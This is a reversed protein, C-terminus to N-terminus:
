LARLLEELREDIAIVCLTTRPYKGDKPGALLEQRIRRLRDPDDCHDIHDLLEVCAEFEDEIAADLEARGAAVLLAKKRIEDIVNSM